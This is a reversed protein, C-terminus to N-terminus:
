PFNLLSKLISQTSGKECGYLNIKVNFIFKDNKNRFTTLEDDFLVLLGRGPELSQMLNRELKHLLSRLM